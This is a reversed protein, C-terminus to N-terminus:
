ILSGVEVGCMLQIKENLNEDIKPDFAWVLNNSGSCLRCVDVAM